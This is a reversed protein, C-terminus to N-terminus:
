LLVKELIRDNDRIWTYIDCLIDRPAKKILWGTDKQVKSNDSIYIRVDMERNEEIKGMEIKNGTIERCLQTTELLSLSCKNGGGVNYINGNFDSMRCLQLDILEFLDEIHILDRVQKGMGCFGIYDLSKNFYHGFMWYTFVGQDIKGMQWPGAIVGCRNITARLGFMEIYEQIILESALKTTGYLSRAGDLPFTESIGKSTVGSIDQDDAITFRTEEENINIESLQKIPYIRSTSLYIIDAKKKRALELCNVTGMLNTNIVYETSSNYGALVSPEASSEIILSIGKDDFSLDEKNRIDGHMFIIEHKRLRELNLESGQRKMNDLAIVSFDPHRAKLLVALNSGVFGAGGTILITKSM